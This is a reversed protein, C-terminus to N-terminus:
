AVRAPAINARLERKTSTATCVSSSSSAKKKSYCASEDAKGIRRAFVKANLCFILSVDRLEEAAVEPSLGKQRAQEQGILIAKIAKAREAKRTQYMSRCVFREVGRGGECLKAYENLRKQIDNSSNCFSDELLTAFGDQKFRKGDSRAALRSKEFFAPWQWLIDTALADYIHLTNKSDDAFSVSKKSTAATM